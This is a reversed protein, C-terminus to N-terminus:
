IFITLIKNTKKTNQIYVSLRCMNTSNTVDGSELVYRGLQYVTCDYQIYHGHQPQQSVLEEFEDVAM